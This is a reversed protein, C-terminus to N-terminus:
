LYENKELLNELDDILPPIYETATKWIVDMDISYYVHVLRHRMGIIDSWPITVYGRRTEATVNNAAEGIIQLTRSLALQLMQNGDLSGRSEGAAIHETTRASELM